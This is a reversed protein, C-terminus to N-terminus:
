PAYRRHSPQPPAIIPSTKRLRTLKVVKSLIDIGECMGYEGGIIFNRAGTAKEQILLRNLKKPSKEIENKRISLFLSAPLSTGSAVLSDIKM